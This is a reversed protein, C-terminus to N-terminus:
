LLGTGPLSKLDEQMLQGVLGAIEKKGTLREPIMMKAKAYFEAREMLKKHVFIQLDGGLQAILPRQSKSHRLRDTLRGASLDLYITTGAENMLDMNDFFCPTGGGTSILYDNKMGIVELLMEREKERFYAEGKAKFLDTISTELRMELYTDLDLFKLGNAKAAYKGVTTKGAGMFGILFFKM